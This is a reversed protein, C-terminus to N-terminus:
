RKDRRREAMLSIGLAVLATPFVYDWVDGTLVGLQTLFMIVGLVLILSGVYM